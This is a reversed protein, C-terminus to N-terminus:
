PKAGLLNAAPPSPTTSTTTEEAPEVSNDADEANPEKPEPATGAPQLVDGLTQGLKLWSSLENIAVQVRDSEIQQVEVSHLPLDLAEGAGVIQTKAPSGVAFWAQLTGDRSQTIAGLRIESLSESFGRAFVNRQVLLEYESRDPEPEDRRVLDSLTDARETAELCLTEIVLTLDLESGNGVPNLSFSQVKHLQASQHFEYLFDVFRPLSTRTRLTFRITHGIRRRNRRDVRGRVEVPQPADANVSASQMQHREVLQLLWERYESRALNPDYPLARDAYDDLRNALRRGAVQETQLDALEEQLATQQNELRETPEEIWSRYGADLFYFVGIVAAASALVITRRNM